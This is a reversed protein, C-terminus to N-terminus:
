DYGPEETAWSTAMLYFQGEDWLAWLRAPTDRHAYRILMTIGVALSDVKRSHARQCPLCVEVRYTITAAVADLAKTVAEVSNAIESASARIM